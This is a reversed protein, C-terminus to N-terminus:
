ELVEDARSLLTPPVTLGLAKATALNIVLELKSLFEIPLDAAKEGKLIRDVYYAARSYNANLNIGYSILGGAEVHERVYFVTPLRAVLAFAALQRRVAVFMADPLVLVIDAHERLLIQFAPGIEAASRVEIIALSVGLKAAAVELEKTHVFNVPNIPNVLVGAKTRRPVLDLGIELQKGTLGELRILTGTVNTGPHSESAALGMGVPDTMNAGVIPISSTTRKVALAAVSTGAVIVDPGLGALEEALSQLRGLDGEAFREEVGYDRRELYGLERMGQFVSDFFVRGTIKSGPTLLGIIPRKPITQAAGAVPWLAASAPIITLFERRRM